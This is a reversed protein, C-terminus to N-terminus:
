LAKSLTHKQTQVTEQTFVCARTSELLWLLYLIPFMIDRQVGRGEGRGGRGGRGM